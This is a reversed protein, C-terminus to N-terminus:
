FSGIRACSALEQETMRTEGVIKVFADSLNDLFFYDQAGIYREVTGGFRSKFQSFRSYRHQPAGSADFGYLDYESCGANRAANMAAWQLAYGGMVNRKRNTIGGYLYTARRGYTMLLLTGLTEGNHEAFLFKAHGSPVLVSALHEFFQLPEVEFGDRASAELMISHFRNVATESCDSVVEVDARQALGINYRGKPKMSALIAEPPQSIDIVLTESPVLDVPARGFEHLISPSPPPLRPEIRLTIIGLSRSQREVEDIILGLSKRALVDDNWPLVPGEPAVLIAAGNRKSATYFLAGGIMENDQYVGLHFSSLGQRRKVEAWPLSQMIGSAPNSTVLAEWKCAAADDDISIDPLLRVELSSM